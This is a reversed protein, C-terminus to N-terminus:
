QPSALRRSCGDRLRAALWRAEAAAAADQSGFLPSASGDTLFRWVSMVADAPLDADPDTLMPRVSALELAVATAVDRRLVVIGPPQRRRGSAIDGVHDLAAAVRRRRGDVTRGPHREPILTM